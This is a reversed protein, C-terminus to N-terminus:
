NTKGNLKGELEKIKNRQKPDPILFAGIGLGSLAPLLLGLPGEPSFVTGKLQEANQIHVAHTNKLFAWNMNDDEMLRACAIQNLEHMFDLKEDVKRADWLTTWPLFEPVNANAYEIAVPDIYCPVIADQFAACGLITVLLLISVTVLFKQIKTM